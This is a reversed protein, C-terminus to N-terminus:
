LYDVMDRFIHPYSYGQKCHAIMTTFNSKVYESLIEKTTKEFSIQPISIIKANREGRLRAFHKRILKQQWEKKYKELIIRECAYLISASADNWYAKVMQFNLLMDAKGKYRDFLQSAKKDAEALRDIQEIQARLKANM